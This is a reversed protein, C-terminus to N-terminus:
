EERIDSLQIHRNIITFADLSVSISCSSSYVVKYVGLMAEGATEDATDASLRSMGTLRSHDSEYM